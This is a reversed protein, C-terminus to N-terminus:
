RKNAGAVQCDVSETQLGLTRFVEQVGGYGHCFGITQVSSERHLLQTIEFVPNGTQLIIGKSSLKEMTKAISLAARLDYYSCLGYTYTSVMNFEQSDIGRYYGYKEGIKTMEEWSTFGDHDKTTPYALITNIVYDAGEVASELSLTKTVRIASDLEQLYQKALINVADLRQSNIDM